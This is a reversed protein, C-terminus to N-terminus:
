PSAVGVILRCWPRPIDRDGQKYFHVYQTLREKAKGLHGMLMGFMRRNRQQVEAKKYIQVCLGLAHVRVGACDPLAAGDSPQFFNDPTSAPLFLRM